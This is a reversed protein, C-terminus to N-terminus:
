YQNVNTSGINIIYYSHICHDICFSLMNGSKMMDTTKYINQTLPNEQFTQSRM